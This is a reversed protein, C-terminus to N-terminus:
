NNIIKVKSTDITEVGELDMECVPCIGAHAYATDTQCQMPCQYAAYQKNGNCSALAFGVVMIAAIAFSKITSSM